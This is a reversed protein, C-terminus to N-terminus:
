HGANRRGRGKKRPSTRAPSQGSTAGDLYGAGVRGGDSSKGRTQTEVEPAASGGAAEGVAGVSSGESPLLLKGFEDPDEEERFERSLFDEPASMSAAYMLDEDDVDLNSKEGGV